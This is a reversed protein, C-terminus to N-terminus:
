QTEGGSSNDMRQKRANKLERFENLIEILDLNDLGWIKYNQLLQEELEEYNSKPLTM